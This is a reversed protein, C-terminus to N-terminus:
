ENMNKKLIHYLVLNAVSVFSLLIPAAYKAKAVRSGKYAKLTASIGCLVTLLYFGGCVGLLTIPLSLLGAFYVISMGLTMLWLIFLPPFIISFIFILYLTGGSGISLEILIDNLSIIKMVAIAALVAIAITSVITIVSRARVSRRPSDESSLFLARIITVLAILCFPAGLLARIVAGGLSPVEIGIDAYMSNGSHKIELATESANITKSAIGMILDLSAKTFFLALAGTLLMIYVMGFATDAQRSSRKFGLVSMVALVSLFLWAMSM